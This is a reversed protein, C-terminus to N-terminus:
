SSARTPRSRRQPRQRLRHGRQPLHLEDDLRVHRRPLVELLRVVDGRRDAREPRHAKVSTRWERWFQDSVWPAVDMRWGATGRDLWTNMVSDPNRFAFDKFSDSETSSPCRRRRGVWGAYQRDPETEDPFFRYWDAYPSDPRITADEFAGVGPFNAYRDFYVSDSGTHNLSTDLIVRIGRAKAERTLRSLDDNTGFNDDVHLYDATDYKHNSGAEFIPNIYLTNVGLRKLYDLKEIIGALDGGFFDNNYTDDDTTSGDADGPVYPKDLWNQHFEVPGDLYTDRGPQPDNATDGNRFREPFIYYYVADKAWEPVKYDPSYVTQRYRRIDKRDTPLFAIQGM